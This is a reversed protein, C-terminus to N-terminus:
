QECVMLDMSHQLEVNHVTLQVQEPGVSAVGDSGVEAASTSRSPEYVNSVDARAAVGSTEQLASHQRPPHAGLLHSFSPGSCCWRQLTLM